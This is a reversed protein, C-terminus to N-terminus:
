APRDVKIALAGQRLAVARAHDLVRGVGAQDLDHGDFGAHARRLIETEHALEPYGIRVKM